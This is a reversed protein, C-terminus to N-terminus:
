NLISFQLIYFNCATKQAFASCLFLVGTAGEGKSLEM